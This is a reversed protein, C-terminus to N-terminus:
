LDAAAVVAERERDIVTMVERRFGKEGGRVANRRPPSAVWRTKFGPTHKIEPFLQKFKTDLNHGRSNANM